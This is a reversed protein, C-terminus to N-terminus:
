HFDTTDYMTTRSTDPSTSLKIPKNCNTRIHVATQPHDVGVIGNATASPTSFYRSGLSDVM